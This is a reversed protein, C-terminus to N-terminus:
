KNLQKYYFRLDNTIKNNGKISDPHIYSYVHTTDPTIQFKYPFQQDKHHMNIAIVYGTIVGLTISLLVIILIRWYNFVPKNYTEFRLAKDNFKYLKM